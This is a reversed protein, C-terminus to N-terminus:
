LIWCYYVESFLAEGVAIGVIEVIWSINCVNLGLM